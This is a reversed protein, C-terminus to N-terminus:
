RGPRRRSDRVSASRRRRWTSPRRGPTVPRARRAPSARAATAPTLLNVHNFRDAFRVKSGGESYRLALPRDEDCRCTTSPRPRIRSIWSAQGAMGCWCHRRAEVELDWLSEAERVHPSARSAVFLCTLRFKVPEGALTDIWAQGFDDTGPFALRGQGGEENRLCQRM